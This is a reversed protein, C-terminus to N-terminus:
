ARASVFAGPSSQRRFATWRLHVQRHAGPKSGQLVLGVADFGPACVRLATGPAVAVPLELNCGGFSVDLLKAALAGAQVGAQQPQWVQVTQGLRFRTAHRRGSPDTSDRPTVPPADLPSQCRPCTSVRRLAAQGCFACVVSPPSAAAPPAARASGAGSPAAAAAAAATATAAARSREGRGAGRVLTRDYAARQEPDSLVAYAHNIRAAVETDGGLDPHARLASMLARYSARIVEAPAEPQVYLLRYLNRREPRQPM